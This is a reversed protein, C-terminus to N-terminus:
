SVALYLIMYATEVAEAWRRLPTRDLMYQKSSEPRNSKRTMGTITLGPCVANARIGKSAYEWAVTKTMHCCAAKTAEYAFGGGM